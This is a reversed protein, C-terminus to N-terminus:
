KGGLTRLLTGGTKLRWKKRVQERKGLPQGALQGRGRVAARFDCGLTDAMEQCGTRGGSPVGGESDADRGPCRRQPRKPATPWKASSRGWFSATPPPACFESDPNCVCGPLPVRAGLESSSGLSEHTGSGRHSCQWPIYFAAPGNNNEASHLSKRRPPSM